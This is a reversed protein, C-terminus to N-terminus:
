CTAQSVGVVKNRGENKARYLMNDAAEIFDQLGHMQEPLCSTGGISVTLVSSVGSYHHDIKLEEIANRILEAKKYAGGAQTNPLLVAFEEGGIRAAFDAPRSIANSLATAVFKLAEDGKSHGYNDNFQKFYDIDLILLSIPTKERVARNWEMNIRNNYNRRNPIETLGDLLAISEILKRQRVIKIHNNVRALVIAYSFPKSIYDVAGLVLGKEEDEDNSLASIFIVPIDKLLENNKIEYLIQYGNMDPMIIDLLVLDPPQRIALALAQSGSKALIVKYKAKLIDALINLNAREDDVILITAIEDKIM